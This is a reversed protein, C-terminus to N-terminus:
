SSAGQIMQRVGEPDVVGRVKFGTGDRCVFSVRGFGLLKGFWGQHVGVAQIHNRKLVRATRAILGSAAILKHPTLELETNLFITLAHAGMAPLVFLYLITALVYGIAGLPALILLLTATLVLISPVFVGWHIEAQYVIPEGPDLMSDALRERERLSFALLGLMVAPPLLMTGAVLLVTGPASGFWVVGILLCALAAFALGGASIYLRRRWDLGYRVGEASRRPWWRMLASILAAPFLVVFALLFGFAGEGWIILTGILAIIAGIWLAVTLWRGTWNRWAYRSNASEGEKM